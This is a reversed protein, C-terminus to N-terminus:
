ARRRRVMVAGLACLGALAAFTSPEPVLQFSPVSAVNIGALTAGILTAGTVLTFGGSTLDSIDVANTNFDTGGGDGAKVAWQASESSNLYLLGTLGSAAESWQIALQQGAISDFDTTGLSGSFFGATGLSNSAVSALSVFSSGDWTGFHVLDTGALDAGGLGQLNNHIQATFSLSTASAISCLSLISFLTITKKMNKNTKINEIRTYIFL